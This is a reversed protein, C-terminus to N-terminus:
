GMQVTWAEVTITDGTAGGGATVELSIADKSSFSAEGTSSFTGTTNGSVSVSLPTDTGNKRVTITTPNDVNNQSIRIVLKSAKMSSPILMERDSETGSAGNFGSPYFYDTTAQGTGSLGDNRGSATSKSGSAPDLTGM